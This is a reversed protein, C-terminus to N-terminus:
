AARKRRALLVAAALLAVLGAAFVGVVPVDDLLDTLRMLPDLSYLCGAIGALVAAVPLLRGFLALLAAPVVFPVFVLTALM